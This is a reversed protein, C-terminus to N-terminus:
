KKIKTLCKILEELEVEKDKLIWRRIPHIQLGLLISYDSNQIIFSFNKANEERSDSILDEFNENVLQSIEPSLDKSSISKLNEFDHKSKEKSM